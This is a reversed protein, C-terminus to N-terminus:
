TVRFAGGVSALVGAVAVLVAALRPNMSHMSGGEHHHSSQPFTTEPNRAAIAARGDPTM